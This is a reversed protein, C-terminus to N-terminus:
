KSHKKEVLATGCKPCVGNKDLAVDPHMPCTYIKTVEAKMQEKPSLNMKRGCQPCKGPNHSTMDLHVPCTYNKTVSAKMEEKLSLNLKMGCKPCSGPKDTIYDPHMPCTYYNTSRQLTDTKGAKSQAFIASSAILFTISLIIIKKM